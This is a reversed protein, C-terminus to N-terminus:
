WGGPLPAGYGQEVLARAISVAGPLRVAGSQAADRLEERSFWGAQEIETGDVRISTTEATGFFGLMLSSPFPWPQSGAYRVAGVRIGVEEAVERVVAQEPTEGPEVFGALTSFRGAPWSVQRGLLCRGDADTIAMIVAPDSRPFHLAACVPCRRAQGAHAVRTPAGCRACHPHSRHWGTLAVAHVLLGAERADLLPALERLGASPVGAPLDAAPVAFYVIGEDVGLLLRDQETVDAPRAFALGDGTDTVPTGGEAVLVVRTSPDLWARQQWAQDFRRHAVRDHTARALPLEGLSRCSM